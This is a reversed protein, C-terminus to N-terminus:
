VPFAKHRTRTGFDALCLGDVAICRLILVAVDPQYMRVRHAIDFGSVKGSLHIDLVLLDFTRHQLWADAAVNDAATWVVYGQRRLLTALTFCIVVEDDVILIYASPQNM